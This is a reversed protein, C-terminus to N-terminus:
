TTVFYLTTAVPTLGDYEAQTLTQVDIPQAQAAAATNVARVGSIWTEDERVYPTGDAPAEPLGNSYPLSNWATVGDGWKALGTDTEYGQEGLALV